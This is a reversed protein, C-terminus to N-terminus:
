FDKSPCRGKHKWGQWWIQMGMEVTCQKWLVNDDLRRHLVGQAVSNGATSALRRPDFRALIPIPSGGVEDEAQRVMEPLLEGVVAELM